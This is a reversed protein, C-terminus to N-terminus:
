SVVTFPTSIVGVRDQGLPWEVGARFRYTGPELAPLDHRFSGSAGPNLVRLEMTCAEALPVPHVQWEGAATQREIGSTCLNYGLQHESRNVLTMEFSDGARMQGPAVTLEAFAGGGAGDPPYPACAVMGTLAAIMLVSLPFSTM